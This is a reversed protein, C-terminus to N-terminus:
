GNRRSRNSTFRGHQDWGESTGATDIRRQALLAPVEDPGASDLSVGSQRQPAAATMPESRHTRGSGAAAICGASPTTWDALIALTVHQLRDDYGGM